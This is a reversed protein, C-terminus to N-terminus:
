KKEFRIYLQPIFVQKRRTKSASLNLAFLPAFNLLKNILWRPLFIYVEVLEDIIGNNLPSLNIVVRKALFM